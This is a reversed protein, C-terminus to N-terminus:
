FNENEKGEQPGLEEYFVKVGVRESPVGTYYSAVATLRVTVNRVEETTNKLHVKLMFDDGVIVGFPAELTFTVDPEPIDYVQHRRRASYRFARYVAEREEESGSNNV